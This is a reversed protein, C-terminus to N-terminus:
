GAASLLILLQRFSCSSSVTADVIVSHPRAQDQPSPLPASATFAQTVAPALTAGNSALRVTAIAGNPYSATFLLSEDHTFGNYVPVPVSVASGLATLSGSSSVNFAAVTSAARFTLYARKADPTLTIWDAGTTLSTESIAITCTNDNFIVSISGGSADGSILLTHVAAFTPSAALLALSLFTPLM